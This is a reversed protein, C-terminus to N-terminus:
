QPAREHTSLDKRTRLCWWGGMEWHGTGENQCAFLFIMWKGNMTGETAFNSFRGGDIM